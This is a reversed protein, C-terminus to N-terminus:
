VVAIGEPTTTEKTTVGNQWISSSKGAFGECCTNLTHWFSEQQDEEKSLDVMKALAQLIANYRFGGMTQKSRAKTRVHDAAAVEDQKQWLDRMAKAVAEPSHEMYFYMHFLGIWHLTTKQKDWKYNRMGPMSMKTWALDIIQYKHEQKNKGKQKKPTVMDDEFQSRMYKVGADIIMQLCQAQDRYQVTM